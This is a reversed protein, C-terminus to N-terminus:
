VVYKEWNMRMGVRSDQNKTSRKSTRLRAVTSDALGCNELEISCGRDLPFSKLLEAETTLQQHIKDVAIFCPMIAYIAHYPHGMVLWSGGHDM